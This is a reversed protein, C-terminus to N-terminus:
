FAEPQTLWSLQPPPEGCAQPQPCIDRTSHSLLVVEVTVGAESHHGEWLVECKPSCPKARDKGKEGGRLCNPTKM